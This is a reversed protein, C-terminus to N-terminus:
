YWKLAGRANNGFKDPFGTFGNPINMLNGLCRSSVRQWGIHAWDVLSGGRALDQGPPALHTPPGDRFMHKIKISRARSDLILPLIKGLPNPGAELLIM